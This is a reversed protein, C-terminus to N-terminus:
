GVSAGLIVNRRDANIQCLIQKLRVPCTSPLPSVAKRFPNSFAQRSRVWSPDSYRPRGVERKINELSRVHPKNASHTRAEGLRGGYDRPKQAFSRGIM